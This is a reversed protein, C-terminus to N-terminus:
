TFVTVVHAKCSMFWFIYFNRFDKKPKEVNISSFQRIIRRNKGSQFLNFFIKYRPFLIIYFTKETANSFVDHLLLLFTSCTKLWIITWFNNNEDRKCLSALRLVYLPKEQIFLLVVYLLCHCQRFHKGQFQFNFTFFLNASFWKVDTKHLVHLPNQSKGKYETRLQNLISMLYCVLDALIELAINGVYM